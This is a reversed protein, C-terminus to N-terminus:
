VALPPDTDLYHNGTNDDPLFSSLATKQMPRPFASLCAAVFNLLFAFKNASFRFRIEAFVNVFKRFYIRGAYKEDLRNRTELMPICSFRAAIDPKTGEQSDM